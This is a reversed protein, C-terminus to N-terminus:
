RCPTRMVPCLRVSGALSDRPQCNLAEHSNMTSLQYVGSDILMVLPSCLRRWFCYRIMKGRTQIRSAEDILTPQTPKQRWDRADDIHRLGTTQHGRRKRRYDSAVGMELTFMSELNDGEEDFM